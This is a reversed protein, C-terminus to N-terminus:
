SRSVHMLAGEPHVGLVIRMVIVSSPEGAFPWLRKEEILESPLNTANSECAVFTKGPVETHAPGRPLQTNKLSV